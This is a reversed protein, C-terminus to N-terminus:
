ELLLPKGLSVLTLLSKGYPQMAFFFTQLFLFFTKGGCFFFGFLFDEALHYIICFCFYEQKYLFLLLCCCFEFLLFIHFSHETELHSSVFLFFVIKSISLCIYIKYGCFLFRSCVSLLFSISDCLSTM